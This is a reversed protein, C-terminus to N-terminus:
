VRGGESPIRQELWDNLKMCIKGNSPNGDIVLALEQGDQIVTLIIRSRPSYKSQFTHHFFRKGRVESYRIENRIAGHYIRRFYNEYFEYKNTYFIVIVLVLAPISMLAIGFIEYLLSGGHLIVLLSLFFLVGVLFSTTL